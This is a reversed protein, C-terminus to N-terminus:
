QARRDQVDSSAMPIMLAAADQIGSHSVQSAKDVMVTDIDLNPATLMLASRKRSGADLVLGVDERDELGEFEAEDLGDDGIGQGVGPYPGM